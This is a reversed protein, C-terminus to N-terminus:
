ADTMRGPSRPSQSLAPYKNLCITHLHRGAKLISHVWERTDTRKYPEDGDDCHKCRSTM